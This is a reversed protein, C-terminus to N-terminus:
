SHSCLQFAHLSHGCSTDSYSEIKSDSRAVISNETSQSSNPYVSMTKHVPDIPVNRLCATHLRQQM